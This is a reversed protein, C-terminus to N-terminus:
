PKRLLLLTIPTTDAPTIPVFFTTDRLGTKRILITSGGDPLFFLSATGTASSLARLGSKTDIIEAGEVTGGTSDDFLGIVRFRYPPYDAVKISTSDATRAPLTATSEAAATPRRTSSDAGAIASAKTPDLVYTGIGPEFAIGPKLSIFMAMNSHNLAVTNDLCDQFSVEAIHEPHISALISLVTDVPAPDPPRTTNGSTTGSRPANRRRTPASSAMPLGFAPRRAVAVPDVPALMVRVGNVWVSEIYGCVRWGARSALMEPRLKLIDTGDIVPRGSKELDDADLHYDHRRRSEEATISVTPLATVARVLRIEVLIVSDTAIRVFRDARNFGIKRVIINTNDGLRAISLSADGSADTTGHAIVDKLGRTVAVDAGPVRTGSSDTVHIRLTVNLTGQARAGM